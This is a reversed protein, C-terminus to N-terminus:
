DEADLVGEDVLFDISQRIGVLRGLHYSSLGCGVVCFLFISFLITDM